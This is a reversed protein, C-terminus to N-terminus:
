RCCYHYSICKLFKSSFKLYNWIVKLSLIKKNIKFYKFYTKLIEFPRMDLPWYINFVHNMISILRKLVLKLLIAPFFM